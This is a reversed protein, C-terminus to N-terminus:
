AKKATIKKIKGHHDVEVVQQITLTLFGIKKKGQREMRRPSSGAQFEGYDIVPINKSAQPFGKLWEQKSHFNYKPTVFTFDDALYTSAEQYRQDQVLGKFTDLSQQFDKM